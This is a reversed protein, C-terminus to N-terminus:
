RYSFTALHVIVAKKIKPSFGPNTNSLQENLNKPQSQNFQTNANVLGLFNM